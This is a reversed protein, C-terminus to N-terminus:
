IKINSRLMPLRRIVIITIVIAAIVITAIIIPMFWTLMLDKYEVEFVFDDAAPNNLISGLDFDLLKTVDVPLGTSTVMQVDSATILDVMVTVSEMVVINDVTLAYPVRATYTSSHYERAEWGWYSETQWSVTVLATKITTQPQLAFGSTIEVDSPLTMTGDLAKNLDITPTFHDLSTDTGLAQNVRSIIADPIEDGIYTQAVRVDNYPSFSQGNEPLGTATKSKGNGLDDLPIADFQDEYAKPILGQYPTRAVYAQEFGVLASKKALSMTVKTGNSLTAEQTYTYNLFDNIASITIRPEVRVQSNGYKTSLRNRADAYSFGAMPVGGIGARMEGDFDIPELSQSIRANGGTTGLHWPNWGCDIQAYMAGRPVYIIANPGDVWGANTTAQTPQITYYVGHSSITNGKLPNITAFTDTRLAPLHTYTRVGFDYTFYAVHRFVVENGLVLRQVTTIGVPDIPNGAADSLYPASSYFIDVDPYICGPDTYKNRANTITGLKLSKDANYVDFEVSTTKIPQFTGPTLDFVTSSFFGTGWLLLGSSGAFVAIWALAKLKSTTKQSITM